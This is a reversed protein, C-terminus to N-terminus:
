TQLSISIKDASPLLLVEIENAMWLICCVYKWRKVCWVCILFFGIWRNKKFVLVFEWSVWVCDKNCPLHSIFWFLAFLTLIALIILFYNLISWCCMRLSQSFMHLTIIIATESSVSMVQKPADTADLTVSISGFAYKKTKKKAISLIPWTTKGTMSHLPTIKKFYCKVYINIHPIIYKFFVIPLYHHFQDFLPVHKCM